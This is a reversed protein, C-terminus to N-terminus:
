GPVGGWQDAAAALPAATTLPVPDHSSAPCPVPCWTLSSPHGSSPCCDGRRGPWVPRSPAPRSAGAGGGAARGGGQGWRRSPPPRPSGEWGALIRLDRIRVWGNGNPWTALPQTAYCCGNVIEQQTGPVQKYDEFGDQFTPMITEMKCILFLTSLNLIKGLAM